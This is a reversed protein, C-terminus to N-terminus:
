VGEGARHINKHFEDVFEELRAAVTLQAAVIARAEPELGPAKDHRQLAALVEVFMQVQREARQINHM